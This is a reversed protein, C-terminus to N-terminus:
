RSKANAPTATCAILNCGMVDAMVCMVALALFVRHCNNSNHVILVIHNASM